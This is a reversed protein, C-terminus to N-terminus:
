NMYRFSASAFLSRSISTWASYSDDPYHKALAHAAEQEAADPMRNFVLLCALNFRKEFMDQPGDPYVTMVREALRHSQKAAFDSNMLFLSQTPVSTV